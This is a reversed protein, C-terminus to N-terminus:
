KGCTLYHNPDFFTGTTCTKEEEPKQEPEKTQGNNVQKAKQDKVYNSYEDFVQTVDVYMEDLSTLVDLQLVLLRIQTEYPYTAKGISTFSVTNGLASPVRKIIDNEALATGSFHREFITRAAKETLYGSIVDIPHDFKPSLARDIITNVDKSNDPNDLGKVARSLIARFEPGYKEKFRTKTYRNSYQLESSEIGKSMQYLRHQMQYAEVTKQLAMDYQRYITAQWALFVSKKEFQYKNQYEVAKQIHQVTSEVLDVARKYNGQSSKLHSAKNTDIYLDFDKQASAAYRQILRVQTTAKAKSSTFTHRDYRTPENSAADTSLPALVLSLFLLLVM